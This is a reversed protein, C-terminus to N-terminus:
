IAKPLSVAFCEPTDYIDVTKGHSEYLSKLYKLGMGTGKKTGNTIKRRCNNSVTLTNDEIKLHINMPNTANVVNHKLANEVLLQISFPIVSIDGTKEGSVQFRINDGYHHKVVKIYDVVIDLEEELSSKRINMLNTLHRYYNSLSLAFELSEAHEKEEILACLMDLSNYLFHPNVYSKIVEYKRAVIEKEMLSQNYIAQRKQRSVAWLEIIIGIMVGNFVTGGWNVSMGTVLSFALNTLVVAVALAMFDIAIKKWMSNVAITKWCVLLMIGSIVLMPIYNYPLSYIFTGIGWNGIPNDYKIWCYTAQFFVTYAMVYLALKLIAKMIHRSTSEM